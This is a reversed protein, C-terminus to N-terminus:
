LVTPAAKLVDDNNPENSGISGVRGV